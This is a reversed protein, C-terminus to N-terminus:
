EISGRELRALLTAADTRAFLRCAVFLPNKGGPPPQM